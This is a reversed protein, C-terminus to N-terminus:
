GQVEPTTTKLGTGARHVCLGAHKQEKPIEELHEPEMSMHKLSISM